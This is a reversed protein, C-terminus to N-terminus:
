GPLQYRELRVLQTAPSRNSGFILNHLDRSELAISRHSKFSRGAVRVDTWGSLAVQSPTIFISHMRRESAQILLNILRYFASYITPILFNRKVALHKSM